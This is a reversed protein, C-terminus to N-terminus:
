VLYPNIEDLYKIEDPTLDKVLQRIVYLPVGRVFKKIISEQRLHTIKILDTSQAMNKSLRRYQEGYEKAAEYFDTGKVLGREEFIQDLTKM